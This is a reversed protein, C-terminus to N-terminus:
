RTARYVVVDAEATSVARGQAVLLQLHARSEMTAMGANFPDLTSFPVRARTWPISEAVQRATRARAELATECENLREDHHDLLEDIREHSSGRVPGHAPLLPHDPLRRIKQLSALFDGLPQQVEVPELGISPTITTLIHDGSFLVGSQVDVFSFHGQTHGPTHLADITRGDVQFRRDDAIWSDPYKWVDLDPTGDRMYDGWQDGIDAAGARRLQAVHPDEDLGPSHIMDLTPKEGRGLLVDSGVLDRIAVAQTYHDQHVHTVLFLGIDALKFGIEALSETLATRAAEVAWGGDIMVLGADTEVAYVNVAKLADQPLPLPIRHVGDAVTWAGPASWHRRSDDSVDRSAM